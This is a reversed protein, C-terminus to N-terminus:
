VKVGAYKIGTKEAVIRGHNKRQPIKRTSKWIGSGSGCKQFKPIYTCIRFGIRDGSGLAFNSNRRLLRAQSEKYCLKLLYIFIKQLIRGQAKM